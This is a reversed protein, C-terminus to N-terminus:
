LIELFLKYNMIHIGDQVRDIPDNSVLIFNKHTKLLFRISKDETYGNHGVLLKQIEQQIQLSGGILFVISHCVTSSNNIM